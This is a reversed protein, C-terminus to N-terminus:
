QTKPGNNWESCEGICPIQNVSVSPPRDTSNNALLREALTEGWGEDSTTVGCGGCLSDRLEEWARIIRPSTHMFITVPRVLVSRGGALRLIDM